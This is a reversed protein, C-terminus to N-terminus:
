TIPSLALPLDEAEDFRRAENQLVGLGTVAFRYQDYERLDWSVGVMEEFLRRAEDEPRANSRRSSRSGANLNEESPLRGTREGGAFSQAPSPLLAGTGTPNYPALAALTWPYYTSRSELCGTSCFM